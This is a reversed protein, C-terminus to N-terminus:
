HPIGPKHFSASINCLHSFSIHIIIAFRCKFVLCGDRNIDICKKFMIQDIVSIEVSFFTWNTIFTINM